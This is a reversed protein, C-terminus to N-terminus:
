IDDRNVKVWEGSDKRQELAEEEDSETSEIIVEPSDLIGIPKVIYDDTWL